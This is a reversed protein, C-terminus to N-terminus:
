SSVTRGRMCVACICYSLSALPLPTGPAALSRARHFFRTEYCVVIVRIRAYLAAYHAYANSALIREVFIAYTCLQQQTIRDDDDDLLCRSRQAIHVYADHLLM